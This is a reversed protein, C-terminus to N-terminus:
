VLGTLPGHPLRVNLLMDFLGYMVATAILSILIVPIVRRFRMTWLLGALLLPTLILFGVFNVLIAYALCVAWVLIARPASSPYRDIDESGEDPVLVPTTRWAVLRRLALGAGGAVLLVGVATPMAAPGLPDRISGPPLLQAAVIMVTGIVMVAVAVAVDKRKDM